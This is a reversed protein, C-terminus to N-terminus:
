LDDITVTLLSSSAQTALDANTLTQGAVQHFVCAADLPFSDEPDGVFALTLTGNGDDVATLGEDPDCDSAGGNVFTGKATPYTVTVLISSTFTDEDTDITIDVAVDEPAATSEPTPATTQGAPTPGTATPQPTASATFTPSPVPTTTPDGSPNPRSGDCRYQEDLNHTIPNAPFCRRQASDLKRLCHLEVPCPDLGAVKCFDPRDDGSVEEGRLCPGDTDGCQQCLKGDSDSGGGGGCSSIVTTGVVAILMMAAAFSGLEWQERKMSRM